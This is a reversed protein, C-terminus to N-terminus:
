KRGAIKQNLGRVLTKLQCGRKLIGQLNALNSPQITERCATMSLPSRVMFQSLQVFERSGSPGKKPEDPRLTSKVFYLDIQVCIKRFNNAIM